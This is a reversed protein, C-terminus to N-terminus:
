IASRAAQNAVRAALLLTAVECLMGALGTLIGWPNGLALETVIAIPITIAAVWGTKYVLPLAASHGKKWAADSAQTHRTRIGASGHRDLKGQAAMRTTSTYVVAILVVSFLMLVVSGLSSDM